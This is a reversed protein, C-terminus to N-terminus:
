AREELAAPKFFRDMFPRFRKEAALQAIDDREKSLRYVVPFLRRDIGQSPAILLAFAVSVEEHGWFVPHELTFIAYSTSLDPGLLCHAMAVGPNIETSSAEERKYMAEKGAEDLVGAEMLRASIQDLAEEKTSAKIGPFFLEASFLRRIRQADKLYTLFDCIKAADQDDLFPTVQIAPIDGRWTLPVTSIILTINALDAQALQRESLVQTVTLGSFRGEIRTRLLESTGFGSECVIVVQYREQAAQREIVAAFHMAIYGMNDESPSIGLESLADGCVVAYDYAESYLSKIQPLLPLSVIADSQMQGCTSWLHAVLGTRLREDGSLDCGYLAAIKQITAEVVEEFDSPSLNSRAEPSLGLLRAISLRDGVGLRTGYARELCAAVEDVEGPLTGPDTTLELGHGLACRTGCVLLHRTIEQARPDHKGIGANELARSLEQAAGSAVPVFGRWLDPDQTLLKEAALARIATEAGIVYYGHHPRSSLILGREELLTRAAKVPKSTSARSMFLQSALEDRTVYDQTLLACLVQYMAHDDSPSSAHLSEQFSQFAAPDVVRLEYGANGSDLAAGHAELEPALTSIERKITRPSVDLAQALASSTQPKGEALLSLIQVGRQKM